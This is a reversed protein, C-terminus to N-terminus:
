FCVPQASSLQASLRTATRAWCGAYGPGCTAPAESLRLVTTTARTRARLGRALPRQPRLQPLDYPKHSCASIHLLRHLKWPRSGSCGERCAASLASGPSFMLVTASSRGHVKKMSRVEVLRGMTAGTVRRKTHDRSM